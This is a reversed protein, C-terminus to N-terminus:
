FNTIFDNQFFKSARDDQQLSKWFVLMMLFIFKCIYKESDRKLFRKFIVSIRAHSQTLYSDFFWNNSFQTKMNTELNLPFSSITRRIIIFWGITWILFVWWSGPLPAHGQRYRIPRVPRRNEPDDIRDPANEPRESQFFKLFENM